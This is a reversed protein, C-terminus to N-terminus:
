YKHYNYVSLVIWAICLVKKKISKENKLIKLVNKIFVYLLM